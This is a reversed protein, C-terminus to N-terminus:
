LYIILYFILIHLILIAPMGFVFKPHKTKHHFVQMGLVMGFSGGVLAVTFLSRESIRYSHKRAKQKDVGMLIFGFISIFTLYCLLVYPFM